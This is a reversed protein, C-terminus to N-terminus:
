ASAAWLDQRGLLALGPVGVVLRAVGGEALGVELALVEHAPLVLAVHVVVQAADLGDVLADAPQELEEVVLPQGVFM